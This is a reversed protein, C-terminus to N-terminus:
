LLFFLISVMVYEVPALLANAINTMSTLHSSRFFLKKIIHSIFLNKAKDELLISM